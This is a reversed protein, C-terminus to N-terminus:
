VSFVLIFNLHPVIRQLKLGKKKERVKEQANDALDKYKKLEKEAEKLQDATDQSDDSDRDTDERDGSTVRRVPNRPYPSKESGRKSGEEGKERSRSSERYRVRDREERSEM